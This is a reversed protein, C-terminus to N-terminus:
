LTEEAYYEKLSESPSDGFFKNYEDIARFVKDKGRDLFTQSCDWKKLKHTKKDIVLFVMPVGFIKEYLWAQSDYNYDNASYKFRDMSNTTKLDYVFSDSVIDAKGKWKLGGIEVIGPQEYVNGDEYIDCSFSFNNKMRSIMTDVNSKESQLMLVDFESNDIAETYVKTRRTSCEISEFEKSNSKQPELMMTHFYRGMVFNQNNDRPKRFSEPDNLLSGIDSNSLYNQGFSGYYHVDDRLKEISKDM